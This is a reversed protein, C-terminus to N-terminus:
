HAEGLNDVDYITVSIAGGFDSIKWHEMKFGTKDFQTWKNAPKNLNTPNDKPSGHCSLCMASMAVPIIYRFSETGKYLGAKDYYEALDQRKLKEIADMEWADPINFKNRIRGLENTFKVKLGTGKKAYKESIQFAFIAPIFGKFKIDEDLLLTKNDEMVEIMVELLVKITLISEDPFHQTNFKTKYMSKINDIFKEGFLAEKDQRQLNILTQQKFIYQMSAAYIKAIEQIESKPSTIEAVYASASFLFSLLFIYKIIM